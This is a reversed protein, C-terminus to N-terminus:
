QVAVFVQASPGEGGGVGNGEGAGDGNGVADGGVGEGERAGVLACTGDVEDGTSEVDVTTPDVETTAVVHVDRAGEDKDKEVATGEDGDDNSTKSPPRANAAAAVVESVDAEKNGVDEDEDNGFTAPELLAGEKNGCFSETINEGATDDGDDDDDFSSRIAATPATKLMVLVVGDDSVAVVTATTALMRAAM